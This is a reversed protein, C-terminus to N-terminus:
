EKTQILLNWLEEGMEKGARKVILDYMVPGVIKNIEAIEDKPLFYLEKINGAKIKEYFEATEKAVYSRSWLEVERAADVLIQQDEKTLKDWYKSSIGLWFSLYPLSFDQTIYPTVEYWKSLFFRSPGSCAGDITGRQLAMYVEGSSLETPIVGLARYMAAQASGATRIRLGKYDSVTHIPRRVNGIISDGYSLMALFKANIKDQFEKASIERVRPHDIFRYYHDYDQWCGAAGFSSIFELAPSRGGVYSNHLTGMALNGTAVAEIEAKPDYLEGSPFRIIEIRGGSNKQVIDRFRDAALEICSGPALTSSLELKVKEQGTSIHPILIMALVFVWYLGLRQNMKM